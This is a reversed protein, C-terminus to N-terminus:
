RAIPFVIRSPHRRSHYVVQRATVLETEALDNGGTNHNRDHNPFDSSTIEVRIRHGKLFRCATPGLRIPYKVIEGPTVLDERNWLFGTGPVSRATVSTWLGPRRSTRGRAPRLLGHGPGLDLRLPRSGSLRGGGGGAGLSRDPLEPHGPSPLPRVRDSPQTFM